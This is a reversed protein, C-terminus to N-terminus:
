FRGIGSSGLGGRRLSMRHERNARIDKYAAGISKTSSKNAAKTAKNQKYEENASVFEERRKQPLKDWTFDKRDKTQRYWTGIHAAVRQYEEPIRSKAMLYQEQNLKGEGTKECWAQISEMPKSTDFSFTEYWPKEHTAMPQAPAKEKKSFLNKFWTKLKNPKKEKKDLPAGDRYEQYTQANKTIADKNAIFENREKEPLIKLFADINQPSNEKWSLRKGNLIGIAKDKAKELVDNLQEKTGLPSIAETGDSNRAVVGKAYYNHLEVINDLGLTNPDLRALSDMKAVYADITEQATKTSVITRDTSRTNYSAKGRGFSVGTIHRFGSVTHSSKALPIEIRDEKNTEAETVVEPQQVDSTVSSESFGSHSTNDSNIYDFYNLSNDEKTEEPVPSVVEQQPPMDVM